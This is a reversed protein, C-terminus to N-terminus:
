VMTALCVKLVRHVRRAPCMQFVKTVKHVKHVMKARREKPAPFLQTRGMPVRYARRVKRVMWAKCAMQVKCAMQELMERSVMPESMVRTVKLESKVLM